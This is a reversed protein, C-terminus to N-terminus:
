QAPPIPVTASNNWLSLEDTGDSDPNVRIEVLGGAPVVGTLAVSVQVSEGPRLAELVVQGVAQGQYTAVVRSKASAKAGTNRVQLDVAGATAKVSWQLVELDALVAIQEVRSNNGKDMERVEGSPDLVVAIGHRGPAVGSTDWAFQTHVTEGPGVREIRGVEIIEGDFTEGRIEYEVDTASARGRNEVSVGVLVTDSGPCGLVQVVGVVLDPLAVPRSTVNNGKDSERILGNPDIVVHIDHIGHDGPAQWDVSVWADQGPEMRDIWRRGILVGDRPDGDYFVVDVGEVGIDGALHVRAAIRRVEGYGGALLAYDQFDIRGDGNRDVAAWQEESLGTLPGQALWYQCLSGLDTMGVREFSLDNPGIALDAYSKDLVLGIDVRNQDASDHSSQKACVVLIGAEQQWFAAMSELEADFTLQQPDSWRQLDADCISYFLDAYAESRGTWYLRGRGAQDRVLHPEVIEGGELTAQPEGWSGSGFRSLWVRDIRGTDQSSSTNPSITEIWVALPQGQIDEIIQPQSVDGAARFLVEETGWQGGRERSYGVVEWGQGLSRAYLVLERGATSLFAPRATTQLTPVVEYPRGFTMGDWDAAMLSTQPEILYDPWIPIASAPSSLWDVRLDGSPLREIWPLLDPYANNTIREPSTWGGQSPVYRACLIEFGSFADKPGQGTSGSVVYSAWAVLFAGNKDVALAPWDDLGLVGSVQGAETWACGKWKAYSIGQRFGPARTRDESVYAIMGTDGSVAVAPSPRSGVDRIPGPVGGDGGAQTIQGLPFVVDAGQGARATPMSPVSSSLLASEFQGKSVSSQGPTPCQYVLSTCHYPTKFTGQTVTYDASLIYSAAEVYANSSCHNSAGPFSFTVYPSFGVQGNYQLRPLGAPGVVQAFGDGTLVVSTNKFRLGGGTSSGEQELSIAGKLNMGLSALQLNACNQLCSTCWGLPMANLSFTSTNGLDATLDVIRVEPGVQGAGEWRGRITSIRGNGCQVGVQWAGSLDLSGTLGNGPIPPHAALRWTFEMADMAIGYRGGLPVPLGSEMSITADFGHALVTADGSYTVEQGSPDARIPGSNLAWAPLTLGWLTLRWTNDSQANDAAVAHVRVTNEYGSPSYKLRSGMDYTVSARTGQASVSTVSGNLDFRVYGPARGSWDIEATIQNQVEVGQVFVGTHSSTVQKVRFGTGDLNDIKFSNSQGVVQGAKGQVIVQVRYTGVAKELDQGSYWVGHHGKGASVGKGVDGTLWNPNPYQWTLGSNSSYQMSVAYTDTKQAGPLTDLDYWVDVAKSGDTRQAATVSGVAYPIKEFVATIGGTDNVTVTTTASTPNAVAVSGDTTWNVFHYSANAAATVQVITGLAYQFAGEGPSVVSGGAASSITLVALTTLSRPWGSATGASSRLEAVFRYLSGPRLGEVREAFTENTRVTGKWVTSQETDGERWYRFRYQCAQGGDDVVCGNLLASTATILRADFTSVHPPIAGSPTTFCQEEGWYSEYVPNRAQAAFCYTAGPNLGSILEIFSHGATLSGTWATYAYPDGSKRYRFRYQCTGGGDSGLYGQLTASSPGVNTAAQTSVYPVPSGGGPWRVDIKKIQGVLAGDYMCFLEGGVEAVNVDSAGPPFAEVMVGTGRVCIRLTASGIPFCSPTVTASWAGGALSAAVASPSILAPFNTQVSLSICGALTHFPDAASTDYAASISAPGAIYLDHQIDCVVAMTCIEGRTIERVTVMAVTVGKADGMLNLTRVNDGRVCIQVSSSGNVSIPVITASWSGGAASAVTVSVSLQAPFNSTVTIVKCGTLTNSLGGSPSYSVNVATQDRVEVQRQMTEYTQQVEEDTLARDFLSVEDIDGTFPWPRDPPYGSPDEHYRGIYIPYDPKTSVGQGLNFSACLTTLLQGDQYVRADQIKVSPIDPIVATYYHWEGDAVTASYGVEGGSIDAMVAQGHGFSNLYVRFTSGYDGETGGYSLLIQVATSSTRAWACATRPSAGQPGPSQCRVYSSATGQFGLATGFQGTTWTAGQIVGNNGGVSDHAISGSGENFNWHSILGPVTPQCFAPTGWVSIIAVLVRRTGRSM